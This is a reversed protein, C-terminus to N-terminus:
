VSNIRFIITCPSHYFQVQKFTWKKNQSELIIKNPTRQVMKSFLSIVTSGKFEEYKILLIFRIVLLFSTTDRRFTNYLIDLIERADKRNSLRFITIILAGLFRCLDYYLQRKTKLKIKIYTLGTSYKKFLKGIIIQFLM